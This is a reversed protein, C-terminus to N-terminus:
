VSVQSESGRRFWCDTERWRGARITHGVERTMFQFASARFNTGSM